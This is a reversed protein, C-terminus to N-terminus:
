ENEAGIAAKLEEETQRKLGMTDAVRNNVSLEYEKPRALLREGSAQRRNANLIINALQKGFQQPTSYIAALAGSKVFERSYAIVPIKRSHTSRLIHRATNRNVGRPDPVALLAQMSNIQAALVDFVNRNDPIDIPVLDIPGAKFGRGLQMVRDDNSKSHLVSISAREVLINRTLKAVRRPPQEASIIRLDITEVAAAITEVAKHYPVVAGYIRGRKVTDVTATLAEGIAIYESKSADLLPLRTLEKALVFTVTPSINTQEAITSATAEALERYKSNIEPLVFVLDYTQDSRPLDSAPASFAVLLLTMLCILRAFRM